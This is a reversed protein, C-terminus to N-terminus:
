PQQSILLPVNTIILEAAASQHGGGRVSYTTSVEAIAFGDFVQRVEPRDNISLIFRGQVGRLVAALREFDARGFMDKGYYDETGWYPPDLYFLTEARDYRRIFAEFDLQEIVVEALREHLEELRPGLTNLNFRAGRGVDVGFTRGSVKGGYSLRQLYLFRAARELDTLTTPDTRVLEEFRRRSTIQFKLTEMFQPYHRQIIRFFTTVDGSADNIVEARAADPRRLFVGGMGGLWRRWLALMVAAEAVRWLVLLLALAIATLLDM